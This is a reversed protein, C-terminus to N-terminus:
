GALKIQYEEEKRFFMPVYVHSLLMVGIPLTETIDREDTKVADIKLTGDGYVNVRVDGDEKTKYIYRYGHNNLRTLVESTPHGFVNTGYSIVAYKCRFASLFKDTTSTKSGHHAVKLIDANIGSFIGRDVLYSENFQNSDGTLVITRGGYELFCIPSLSNIIEGRDATPAISSSEDKENVTPYDKKLYSYCRIRWADGSIEFDGINYRVDAKKNVGDKTYTENQIAKVLNRWNSGNADDSVRPIYINKVQYNDLVDELYRIHDNDSHTVFMHDLQKVGYSDLIKEIRDYHNGLSTSGGDMLMTQGDPFKFFLSDGQTIDIVVMELEGSSLGATNSFDYSIPNRRAVTKIASGSFVKDIVYYECVACTDTGTMSHASEDFVQDCRRCILYHISDNYIYETDSYHGLAPIELQEIIFSQCRECWTGDTYGAEICTPEKGDILVEIHGLKEIKDPMIIVTMCDACHKGETYGEKECTPEVAGDIVTNKHNKADVEGYKKNCRECTAREICSAEGGIHGLKAISEADKLYECLACIEGETYGDEECTPEKGSCYEIMHRSKESEANCKERVCVQWHEVDNHEYIYEHGLAPIVKQSVIVEKCRSCIKGDTSGDETCTAEKGNIIEEAHGLAPMINQESIVTDCSKCHKGETLGSGECTAAVASDIVVYKHNNVNTEGYECHCRACVAKDVCTATGGIHGLEDTISDIDVKGCNICTHKTYGGEECTPLTIDDLYDHGTSKIEESEVLVTDCASCYERKTHGDTECTPELPEETILHKHDDPKVEGYEMHCRACVAKDVCNAKRGETHGLAEITEIIIKEGCVLCECYRCGELVCTAEEFKEQSLNLHLCNFKAYIIVETDSKKIDKIDRFERKFDADFFWGVFEMGVKEPAAPMSFEDETNNYIVYTEGDVKYVIRITDSDSDMVFVIVLATATVILLMLVATIIIAIKRKVM